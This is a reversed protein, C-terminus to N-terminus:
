TYVKMDARAQALSKAANEAEKCVQERKKLLNNRSYVLQAKGGVLKSELESQRRTYKQDVRHLFALDRPSQRYQQFRTELTNRWEVLKQTLAPGFGPVSVVRNYSVDAATEIGYSALVLARKKGINSIEANEIFYRELYIKLLASKREIQYQNPLNKYENYSSQLSRYVSDFGPDSKLAQYQMEIIQWQQEAQRLMSKRRDYEGRDDHFDFFFNFFGLFGTPPKAYDPLPTPTVRISSVDRLRGLSPIKITQIKFWIDELNFKIQTSGPNTYPLFYVTGSSNELSCWPCLSLSRHYKHASSQKCSCLKNRLVDLQHVWDQAKPRNEKRVGEEGFAREFLQAVSSTCVSLDLANPPPAMQKTSARTSFAFRYEQIAKEIPMDGSGSYRGAFPHRGMFLLQFIIVALGFNDHNEKRLIGQFSKGQLEPPTFHPTGVECSYFKDGLRIQFSDTDILRCVAQQSILIGSQNVDGITHGCDHIAQFAAAVNRAAHILFSWDAHPFQVKRHAPGYLEHVERHGSVRPMIFGKIISGPKDHLTASPWATFRTLDLSNVVMATLKEAKEGAIPKHYIKAVNTTDGQITYVLGEGGRGVEEGLLIPKNKHDYLRM